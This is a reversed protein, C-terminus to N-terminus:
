GDSYLNIRNSLLIFLDNCELISELYFKTLHIYSYKLVTKLSYNNTVM